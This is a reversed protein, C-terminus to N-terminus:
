SMRELDDMEVPTTEVEELGTGNCVPCEGADFLDPDNGGYRSRLLRGEGGCHDCLVLIM